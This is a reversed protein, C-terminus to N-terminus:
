AGGSMLQLDSATMTVFGDGFKKAAIACLQVKLIREHRWSGEKYVDLARKCIEIAHDAEIRAEPDKTFM